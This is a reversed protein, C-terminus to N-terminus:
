MGKAAESHKSKLSKDSSGNTNKADLDNARVPYNNIELCGINSPLMTDFWSPQIDFYDKALRCFPYLFSLVFETLSIVYSCHHLRKRFAGNEFHKGYM